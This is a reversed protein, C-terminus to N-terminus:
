RRGRNNGHFLCSWLILIPFFLFPLANFKEALPNGRFKRLFIGNESSLHTHPLDPVYGYRRGTNILVLNGPDDCLKRLADRIDPLENESGALFLTGDLDLSILKNYKTGM